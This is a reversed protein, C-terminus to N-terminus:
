ANLEHAVSNLLKVKFYKMALFKEDSVGLSSFIKDHVTKVRFYGVTFKEWVVTCLIQRDFGFDGSRGIYWSVTTPPCTPM